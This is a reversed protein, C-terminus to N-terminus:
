VAASYTIPEITQVQETVSAARWEREAEAALWELEGLTYEGPLRVMPRAHIRVDHFFVEIVAGRLHVTINENVILVM